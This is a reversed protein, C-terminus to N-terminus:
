NSIPVNNFIATEPIVIDLTNIDEPVQLWFYADAWATEPVNNISTPSTTRKYVTKYVENTQPNRGKISRFDILNGKAKPSIRRVRLQYNVIDKAKTEPNKIRTASVLEFKVRNEYGSSVFQGPKIATAPAQTTSNDTYEKGKNKSEPIKPLNSSANNNKAVSVVNDISGTVTKLTTSNATVSDTLSDVSKRLELVQTILYITALLALSSVTASLLSLINKM